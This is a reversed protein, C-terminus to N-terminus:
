RLPFNVTCAHLALDVCTMASAHDVPSLGPSSPSHFRGRFRAREGDIRGGLGSSRPNLAVLETEANMTLRRFWYTKSRERVEGGSPTTENNIEAAAARVAHMM